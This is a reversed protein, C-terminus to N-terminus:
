KQGEYRRDYSPPATENNIVPSEHKPKPKMVLYMVLGGLIFGLGGFLCGYRADFQGIKPCEACMPSFAPQSPYFDDRHPDVYDEMELM